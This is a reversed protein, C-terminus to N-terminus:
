FSVMKWYGCYSSGTNDLPLEGVEDLFITGGDAVEFYGNRTQHLGRLHVKKM